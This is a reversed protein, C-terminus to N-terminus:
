IFNIYLKLNGIQVRYYNPLIEVRYKQLVIYNWIKEILIEVILDLWRIRQKRFNLESLWLRNEIFSLIGWYSIGIRFYGM